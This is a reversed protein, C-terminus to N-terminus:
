KCLAAYKGLSAGPKVHEADLKLITLKGDSLCGFLRAGSVFTKVEVANKSLRVVGTKGVPAVVGIFIAHLFKAQQAVALEWFDAIVNASFTVNRIFSSANGTAVPKDAVLASPNESLDLITIEPSPAQVLTPILKARLDRERVILDAFATIMERPSRRQELLEEIYVDFDGRLVQADHLARGRSSSELQVLEAEFDAAEDVLGEYIKGRLLLQECLQADSAMHAHAAAAGFLFLGLCIKATTKFM